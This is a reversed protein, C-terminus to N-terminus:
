PAWRRPRSRNYLSDRGKGKDWLHWVGVCIPWALQAKDAIDPHAVGGCLYRKAWRVSPPAPSGLVGPRLSVDEEEARVWAHLKQLWGLAEWVANPPGAFSGHVAKSVAVTVAITTPDRPGKTLGLTGALKTPLENWAWTGTPFLMAFSDAM